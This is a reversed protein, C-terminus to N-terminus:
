IVIVVNSVISPDVCLRLLRVKVLPRKKSAFSQGVSTFKASGESSFNIRYSTSWATRSSTKLRRQGPSFINLIILPLQTSVWGCFTNWNILAALLERFATSSGATCLKHCDIVVISPSLRFPM